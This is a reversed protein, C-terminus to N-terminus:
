VWRRYKRGFEGVSLVRANHHDGEWVLYGQRTGDDYAVATTIRRQLVHLTTALGNAEYVRFEQGQGHALRLQVCHDIKVREAALRQALAQDARCLEEQFRSEADAAATRRVVQDLRKARDEAETVRVGLWVAGVVKWLSM